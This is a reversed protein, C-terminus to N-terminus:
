RPLLKIIRKVDSEHVYAGSRLQRKRKASKRTLLHRRFGQARKIKGNKTVKGFRKKAASRTKMKSNVKKAM